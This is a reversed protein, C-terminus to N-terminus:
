FKVHLERPHHHSAVKGEIKDFLCGELLKEIPQLGLVMQLGPECKGPIFEDHQICINSIMHLSHKVLFELFALSYCKCCVHPGGPKFM